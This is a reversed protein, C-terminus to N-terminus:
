IVLNHSSVNVYISMPINLFIQEPCVLSACAWSMTLWFSYMLVTAIVVIIIIVTVIAIVIIIM